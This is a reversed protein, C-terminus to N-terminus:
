ANVMKMCDPECFFGQAFWSKKSLCIAPQDMSSARLGSTGRVWIHRSMDLNSGSQGRIQDPEPQAM